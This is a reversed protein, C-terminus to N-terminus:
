TVRCKARAQSYLRKAAVSAYPRKSECLVTSLLPQPGKRQQPLSQNPVKRQLRPRKHHPLRPLLLLAQRQQQQQQQQQMTSMSSIAQSPWSTKIYWQEKYRLTSVQSQLQLKFCHFLSLDALFKVTTM